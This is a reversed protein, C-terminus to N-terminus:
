KCISTKPLGIMKQFNIKRWSKGGNETVQINGDDTGVYILGEEIPSESISTIILMILCQVYMGLMIGNKNQVMFRLQYASEINNTLDESITEWSDGRDNSKWLRQSAKKLIYDKLIM